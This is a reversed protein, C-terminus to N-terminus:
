ICKYIIPTVGIHTRVLMHVSLVFLLAYMNNQKQTGKMHLNM